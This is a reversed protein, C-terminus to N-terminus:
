CMRKLDAKISTFTTMGAKRPMKNDKEKKKQRKRDIYKWGIQTKMNLLAVEANKSKSFDMRDIKRKIM